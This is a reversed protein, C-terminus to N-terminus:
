ASKGRFIKDPARDPTYFATISIYGKFIKAQRAQYVSQKVSEKMFIWALSWGSQIIMYILKWTQM